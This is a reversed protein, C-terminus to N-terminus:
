PGSGRWDRGFEQYIDRVCVCSLEKTSASSHHPTLHVARTISLHDTRGWCAWWTSFVEPKSKCIGTMQAISSPLSSVGQGSCVGHAGEYVEAYSIQFLFLLGDTIYSYVTYIANKFCSFLLMLGMNLFWKCMWPKAEGFIPNLTCKGLASVHRKTELKVTNIATPERLNAVPKVTLSINSLAKM